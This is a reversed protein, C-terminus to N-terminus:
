GEQEEFETENVMTIAKVKPPCERACIGCGKCHKYDFSVIKGDKAVIAADPCSVWCLLCNICKKASWVPRMTRWDGTEYKESNGPETIVGGMPISKWGPAQPKTVSKM